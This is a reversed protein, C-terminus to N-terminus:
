DTAANLPHRAQASSASYVRVVCGNFAPNRSSDTFYPLTSNQVEVTYVVRETISDTAMKNATLAM